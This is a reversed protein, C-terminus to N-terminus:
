RANKLGNQFVEKPNWDVDAAPFKKQSKVLADLIGLSLVAAGQPTPHLGDGQMLSRTKGAPLFTGDHMRIAENAKVQHMFEALPVVTAHHSKAWQKLRENAARRAAESPVQDASIIGTNTASAADPIDGVVLPCPIRELQKLGTEFHEAREADSTGDGYCFWFMFDVAIVLTPQNNTAADIQQVSLADPNLFFLSSGFNKVPAHKATIAADLYRHLKCRDTNTGGFPESMVFGGSASAGIVVVRSWPSAAFATLQFLAIFLCLWNKFRNSTAPQFNSTPNTVCFSEAKFEYSEVLKV